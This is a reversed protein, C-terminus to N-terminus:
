RTPSDSKRSLTPLDSRVGAGTIASRTLIRVMRRRPSRSAFASAMARRCDYLVADPGNSQETRAQEIQAETLVRVGDLEGGRALASYFKALSWANTHGTPPRFRPAAGPVNFQDHKLRLAGPPNNLAKGTISEPDSEAM